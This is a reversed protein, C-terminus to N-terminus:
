PQYQWLDNLADWDNGASDAGYGGFLWLNGKSDIWSSAGYRGGPGNASNQVGLTGYV